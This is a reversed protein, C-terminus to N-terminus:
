VIVRPRPTAVSGRNILRPPLTVHMPTPDGSRRIRQLCVTMATRGVARKPPAIADLPPDAMGAVEDDYAIISFEEPVRIARERAQEALTIAAVDPHVLVGTTGTRECQELAEVARELILTQEQAHDRVVMEIHDVRDEDFWARSAEFGLTLASSTPTNLVSILSVARHGAKSLHEFAMRAGLAHDSRVSDLRHHRDDVAREMVVSPIALELLLDYTAPDRAVTAAPAVILGKAGSAVLSRIQRRERESDYNSVALVLRVGEETAAAQAGELTEAFYYGHTPIIIGIVARPPASPAPRPRRPAKVTAPTEKVAVAGGHVRRALGRDVIANLDRRISVPSSGLQEALDNVQVSGHERLM